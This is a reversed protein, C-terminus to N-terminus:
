LLLCVQVCGGKKTIVYRTVIQNMKHCPLCGRGASLSLSVERLFPVLNFRLVLDICHLYVHFYVNLPEYYRSSVWVRMLFLPTM